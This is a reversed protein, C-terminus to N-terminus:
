AEDELAALARTLAASIRGDLVLGAAESVVDGAALAPDALLRVTAPLAVQRSDLLATVHAVDAPSVRVTHIEADVPLALARELIARASDAGPRLERALVAEALQVAARQVAALVEATQPAQEDAIAAVTNALTTVAARVDADRRAETRSAEEARRRETAVSHEAAARAGAAWGAAYGAAQLHDDDRRHDALGMSTPRFAAATREPSM